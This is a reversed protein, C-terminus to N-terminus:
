IYIYYVIYYGWSNNDKGNIDECLDADQSFIVDVVNYILMEIRIYSMTEWLISVTQKQCTVCDLDALYRLSCMPM